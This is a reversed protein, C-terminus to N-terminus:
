YELSFGDTAHLTWDNRIPLNRLAWNRKKPWGGEYCFQYVDAGEDVAREITRDSSQSDIVCIQEAWRVSRICDRINREENRVAVLVTLPFHSM